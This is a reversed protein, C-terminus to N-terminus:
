SVLITIYDVQPFRGGKINKNKLNLGELYNKLHKIGKNLFIKTKKFIIGAGNHIKLSFIEIKKPMKKSHNVKKTEYGITM